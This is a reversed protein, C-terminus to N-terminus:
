AFRRTAVMGAGLMLLAMLAIGYQSLTPIGEFFATNYITCSAEGAGLPVDVRDCDSSDAEVSSPVDVEVVTCYSSGDYDPYIGTITDSDTAGAFEMSGQITKTDGDAADRVNYCAWAASADLPIDNELVDGLWAKNVTVVAPDLDNEVTCSFSGTEVGVFYCGTEDAYIEAASGDGGNDSAVYNPTYGDPVPEEWIRCNMSGAAFERVVFGVGPFPGNADPDTITFSQELPLGTNCSINVDVPLPNDDSFDKTVNFSSRETSLPIILGTTLGVEEGNSCVGDTAAWGTIQTIATEAADTAVAVVTTGFSIECTQESLNRIKKGSASKFILTNDQGAIPSAEAVMDTILAGTEDLCDTTLPGNFQVTNGGWICNDLTSGAECDFGYSLQNIDLFAPAPPESVFGAGVTLFIPIEEDIFFPSQGEARVDLVGNCIQGFVQGPLMAVVAALCVVLVSFSKNIRSM